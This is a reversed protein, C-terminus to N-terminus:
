SSVSHVVRTATLHGSSAQRGPLAAALRARLQLWGALATLSVAVPTLSVNLVHFPWIAPLVALAALALGAITSVQVRGRLAILLGAGLVLLAYGLAPTSLFAALAALAALLALQLRHGDLLAGREGVLMVVLPYLLVDDNPHAYPTCALWVALGVLPVLARSEGSTGRLRADRTALWALAIVAIGGAVGVAAGILAGHPLRVLLGAIGSLDPQVANVRGGFGFLHGFFASSNPVVVFGAAAGGAITIGAAAAFRWARRHDDSWAAFLLLPLPWLLHPKFLVVVMCAGALWAANRRMLLLSAVVGALLLADFQGSFFGLLMLWSCMAALLWLGAHDWGAERTWARLAIGALLAGLGTFVAFSLWYPLWAVAGLLVAVIPLDTFDDLSPQVKPYLQAAQEAAHITAADYPNGGHQVVHAAAYFVRWDDALGYPAPPLIHAVAFIAFAVVFVLLAGLM